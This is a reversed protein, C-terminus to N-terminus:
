EEALITRFDHKKLPFLVSDGTLAVEEGTEADRAVAPRVRLQRTNLRLVCEGGNGFDSVLILVKAARKLLLAKADVGEIRM